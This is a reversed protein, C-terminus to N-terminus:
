EKSEVMWQIGYKDVLMGFNDEIPFFVKGGESLKNFVEKKKNADDFVVFLSINSGNIIEQGPLNDSAKIKINGAIVESNFIRDKADEPFDMPTDGFTQMITIEGGLTEKYFEMAERCNGSFVLYPTLSIM